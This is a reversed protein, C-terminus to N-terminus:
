SHLQRNLTLIHDIYADQSDCDHQLGAVRAKLRAIEEELKAIEEKYPEEDDEFDRIKGRLERNLTELVEITTNSEQLKKELEASTNQEEDLLQEQRVLNNDSSDVLNRLTEQTRLLGKVKKGMDKKEEELIKNYKKLEYGEEVLIENDEELEKIQEKLGTVQDKLDKVNKGFNAVDTSNQGVGSSKQKELAERVSKERALEQQLGIIIADKEQLETAPGGVTTDNAGDEVEVRRKKQQSRAEINDPQEHARKDRALDEQPGAVTADDGEDESGPLYSTSAVKGKQKKAKAKERALKLVEPSIVHSQQLIYPQLRDSITIQKNLFGKIDALLGTFFQLCAFDDFGSPLKHDKCLSAIVFIDEFIRTRDDEDLAPQKSKKTTPDKNDAEDPAKVMRKLERSIYNSSPHDDWGKLKDIKKCISEKCKAKLKLTMIWDKAAQRRALLENDTLRKSGM